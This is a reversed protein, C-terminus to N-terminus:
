AITCHDESNRQDEKNVFDCLRRHLKMSSSLLRGLEKRQEFRTGGYASKISDFLRETIIKHNRLEERCTGILDLDIQAVALAVDRRVKELWAENYYSKHANVIEAITVARLDCSNDGPTSM